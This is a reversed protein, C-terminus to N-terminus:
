EEKAASDPAKKTAESVLDQWGFQEVQDAPVQDGPHYALSWGEGSVHLLAEATYFKPAPTKGETAM